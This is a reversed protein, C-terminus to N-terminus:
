CMTSWCRLRVGRRARGLLKPRGPYGGGGSPFEEIIHSYCKSIVVVTAITAFRQLFVALYHHSVGNKYLHEFAKRRAM